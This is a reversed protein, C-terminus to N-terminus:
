GKKAFVKGKLKQWGNKVAPVSFLIMFVILALLILSLPRNFMTLLMHDSASAVSAARRLSTDMLSGLVMGLVIPAIPYHFEKLVVAVAGVVIMIVVHFMNSETAFAGIFCLVAVVAMLRSKKVQIVRALMPAFVIGLLLVAFTAVLGGTVITNFIEPQRTMLLPGPNMGHLYFVALMIATVADGPVALTLLPILAGGVVANNATESAIIGEPAGEGFPVEPDPISRKATDYSILAAIPGGAGPLVGILTGIIASRIVLIPRKIFHRLPHVKQRIFKGSTPLYNRTKIQDLVEAFGFLGIIAPVVPVGAGLNAVGFTLRLMGNMSDTGILSLLIGIIASIFGRIMNDGSLSVVCTMGLVALLFYDIQQFELALKAIPKATFALTLMGVLGGIFSYVTALMLAEYAKGQKAMPYGDLTTAISSPAGPIRILIASVAGSYVGVMYVGMICAFADTVDWGYTISVLLATAMSVSLGPLAGVLLGAFSGFMVMAIFRLDIISLIDLLM